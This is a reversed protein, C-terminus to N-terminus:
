FAMCLQLAFEGMEGTFSAVLCPLGPKYRIEHNKGSVVTPVSMNFRFETEALKGKAQGAIINAVEALCSQVLEENVQAGLPVLMRRALEYSTEKGFSIVLTGESKGSLSLLASHDGFIRYGQKRYLSHLQPRNEAMESLTHQTAEIFPRLLQESIEDMVPEINCRNEVEKIVMEPDAEADCVSSAGAALLKAKAARSPNPTVAILPLDMYQICNRIRAFWGSRWPDTEQEYFVVVGKATGNGPPQGPLSDPPLEALSYRGDVFERFKRPWLTDQQAILFIQPKNESM